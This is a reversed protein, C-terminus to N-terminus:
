KSKFDNGLREWRKKLYFAAAKPQRDRTFIGKHNGNVRMIGEGTQFDAFNWVQEGKIFDFSDFVRHYMELYEEQYEQSWMVSPLKHLEADTDAGYESFMFPKGPCRKKWGELEGRLFVEADSIEYGGKVYWGYYRNLCMIDALEACKCKDPTATMLSTFTCPRQQPDLSRAHAFVKEFYPVASEDTTEPENALCWAIVCAHSKDRRILEEIATLHNQLLQPTTEKRFFATPKGNAAAVFNLTSTMMGVAAAEDIVLFGERDAMQYIEESYPYHATRFSNAGIWKMLEFDRKIMAPNYGRGTTDSDEHKGFGKLYVSKGNLLIDTGRVEVTRIGIYESYEDIVTGGDTIRFVFQYLYADRVNWLRANDITIVGDKGSKAAVQKGEEDFVTVTVRNSGTTEVNYHVMAKNGSLEYQVMFDTIHEKPLATLTVPRLLGAYNFFDFYPKAMKKGNQLTTTIGVPICDERLENNCKVILTNPADWTIVDSVPVVFPTFGGEHAAIKLGNVFVLARHAAAAFRIGIEKDRWEGPVVFETEYWFDGTYERSDKDTLFDAFSSPVPMSVPAPLKQTWGEAEGSSEPDFQFKWLGGLDVVRRRATTRPYLLSQNM